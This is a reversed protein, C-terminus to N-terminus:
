GVARVPASELKVRVERSHNRSRQLANPSNPVESKRANCLLQLIPAAKPLEEQRKVRRIWQRLDDGDVKGLIYQDQQIRQIAGRKRSTTTVSIGKSAKQEQRTDALERISM